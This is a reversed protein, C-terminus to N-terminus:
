KGVFIVFANDQLDESFGNTVARGQEELDDLSNAARKFRAATIFSPIPDFIAPAPVRVELPPTATPEAESIELCQKLADLFVLAGKGDAGILARRLTPLHLSWPIPPFAYSTVFIEHRLRTTHPENAARALYATVVLM